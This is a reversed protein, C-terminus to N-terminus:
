FCHDEWQRDTREVCYAQRNISISQLIFFLYHMKIIFEGSHMVDNFVTSQIQNFEQIPQFISRYQSPIDALSKKFSDM